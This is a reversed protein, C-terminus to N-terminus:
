FLDSPPCIAWRCAGRSPRRLVSEPDTCHIVSIHSEVPPDQVGVQGM